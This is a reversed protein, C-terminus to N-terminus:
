TKNYRKKIWIVFISGIMGGAMDCIIDSISDSIAALQVGKIFFQVVYEYYEWVLGIVFVFLALTIFLERKPLLRIHRVLLAAGLVAVFVGGITHMLMDFWPISVYWYFANALANVLMIIIGLAAASGILRKYM